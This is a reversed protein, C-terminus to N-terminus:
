KSVPIQSVRSHSSSRNAHSDITAPPSPESGVSMTSNSGFQNEQGKDEEKPGEALKQGIESGSNAHATIVHLRKPSQSDPPTGSPPTHRKSTRSSINAAECLQPHSNGTDCLHIQAECVFVHSDKHPEHMPPLETQLCYLGSDSGSAAQAQLAMQVHRPTVVESCGLNTDSRSMYRLNEYDYPHRYVPPQHRKAGPSRPPLPIHSESSRRSITLPSASRCRDLHQYHFSSSQVIAGGSRSPPLPPLPPLAHRPISSERSGRLLSTIGRRPTQPSAQTRNDKKNDSSGKRRAFPSSFIGRKKDKQPSSEASKQKLPSGGASFMKSSRSKSTDLKRLVHPGASQLDGSPVHSEPSRSLNPSEEGM